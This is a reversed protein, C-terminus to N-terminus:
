QPLEFHPLGSHAARFPPALFNAAWLSSACGSTMGQAAGELIGLCSRCPLTCASLTLECSMVKDAGPRAGAWFGPFLARFLLFLVATKRGVGPEGPFTLAQRPVLASPRWPSPM